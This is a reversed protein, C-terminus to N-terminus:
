RIAFPQFDEPIMQAIYEDSIGYQDRLRAIYKEQEKLILQQLLQNKLKVEVDRFSPPLKEVFDVVHFIRYVMCRDIRSVQGIPESVEGKRLSQLADRHSTALSKLTRKELESISISTRFDLEGGRRMMELQNALAEMDLGPSAGLLGKAVEAAHAAKQSDPHRISLMRYHWEDEDIAKAKFEEYAAQIMAPNISCFARSMVMAGKMRDVVLDNKVMDCADEYSIELDDLTKVVDPGFMTDLEQHIEGETIKLEREEADALILQHNIMEDLAARWAMQYFQFRAQISEALEPCYHMFQIDMKRTLDLVSIPKSNPCALVRNNIEIRLRPEGRQGSSFPAPEGRHQAILPLSLMAAAASGVTLLIGKMGM